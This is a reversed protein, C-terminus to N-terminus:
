LDLAEFKATADDAAETTPSPCVSCASAGPKAKGKQVSPLNYLQYWDLKGAGELRSWDIVHWMGERGPAPQFLTQSIPETDPLQAFLEEASM